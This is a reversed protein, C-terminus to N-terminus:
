RSGAHSNLVRSALATSNTLRVLPQGRQDEVGVEGEWGGRLCASMLTLPLVERGECRWIDSIV